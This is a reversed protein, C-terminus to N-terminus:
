LVEVINMVNYAGNKLSYDAGNVEQVFEICLILFKIGTIAPLSAPVLDVTDVDPVIEMRVPSSIALAANGTAFDIVAYGGKFILHTAGQPISVDNLPSLEDIIIEGDAAALRLPAHLVAGLPAKVNFNFGKLLQKGEPTALGTAVNREGRASTTDLNKIKAMTKTLRSTVRSDSTNMSLTRLTDRLLKGAQASNGFEAGNERTRVFAPDTAIRSAEVGGKERALYGDISKYFTIDGMTGKLKILGRQRAM